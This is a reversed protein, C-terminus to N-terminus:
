GLASDLIKSIEELAKQYRDRESAVEQLDSIMEQLSDIPSNGADKRTRRMTKKKTRAPTRAAKAKAAKGTGRPSVKVLGLLAKARGYMIPFVTLGKKSAAEKVAAYEVKPNKKLAAVVFEMAPSTKKTAM